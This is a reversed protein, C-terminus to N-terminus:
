RRVIPWGPESLGRLCCIVASTMCINGHKTEDAVSKFLAKSSKCLRLMKKGCLNQIDALPSNRLLEFGSVTRQCDLVKAQGVYGCNYLEIWERVINAM